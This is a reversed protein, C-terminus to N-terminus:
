TLYSSGSVNCLICCDSMLHSIISGDEVRLRKSHRNWLHVAYSVRRIHGLKALVWKLEKGNSPRRFFSPIKSWNVPYFAMPPLVTFNFDPREVVRSVLYPGNHGWKNGDFTLAFEEIFKYLLPHSKDFAMVANNLRSWKGTELDVTQAGIANRLGAFSKMVIVDSDIYVGGFKYLVALRLLNSLNQGLSVEGPDVNGRGLQNFWAEADTKRFLYEFDPAIAMVRYGKTLLPRLVINGKRSDMAKSLILVCASPHSKFVSEVTFFERFGFSELSSIWTMFFRLKCSNSSFFGKARASFQKTLPGSKLIRFRSRNEKFWRIRGDVTTNLPPVLSNENDEKQTLLKFSRHTELEKSLHNEEEKIAYMVSVTRPGRVTNEPSFHINESTPNAPFPLHLCFITVGNCASVLLLLAALSFTPLFFFLSFSRLSSSTTIKQLILRLTRLMVVM